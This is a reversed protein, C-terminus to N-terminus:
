AQAVEGAEDAEGEVAADIAQCRRALQSQMVRQQILVEWCIWQIQQHPHNSRLCTSMIVEAGYSPLCLCTLTRDLLQVFTQM